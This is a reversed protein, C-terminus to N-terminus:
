VSCRVQSFAISEFGHTARLGLACGLLVGFLLVHRLEPRPFDRGARLLFYICSLAGRGGDAPRDRYTEAYHGGEPHPELGLERILADASM